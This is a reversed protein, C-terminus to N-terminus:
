LLHIAVGPANRAAQKPLDRDFTLLRTTPYLMTLEEALALYLADASHSAGYGTCIQDARLILSADGGPPPLVTKMLAAFDLVAQAHETTTMLSNIMKNRLAYLTESVIVGPAFFLYGSQSYQALASKAAAQTAAEQASVSIATNADLVVAGSIMLGNIMLPNSAM